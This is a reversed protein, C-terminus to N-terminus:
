YNNNPSIIANGMLFPLIVQGKPLGPVIHDEPCWSPTSKATGAPVGTRATASPVTAPIPVQPEAKPLCETIM